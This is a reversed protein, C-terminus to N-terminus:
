GDKAQDGGAPPGDDAFAVQRIEFALRRLDALTPGFPSTDLLLRIKALREGNRRGAQAEAVLTALDFAHITRRPDEPHGDDAIALEALGGLQEDTLRRM